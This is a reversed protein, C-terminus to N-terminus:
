PAILGAPGRKLAKAVFAKQRAMAGLAEAEDETGTVIESEAVTPETWRRTWEEAAAPTAEHIWVFLNRSIIGRSELAQAKFMAPLNLDLELQKKDNVRLKSLGRTPFCKEYKSFDTLLDDPAQFACDWGITPAAGTYWAWKIEDGM